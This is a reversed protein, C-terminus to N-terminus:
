FSWGVTGPMESHLGFHMCLVHLVEGFSMFHAERGGRAPCCVSQSGFTQLRLLHSCHVCRGTLFMSGTSKIARAAELSSNISINWGEADLIALFCCWVCQHSDGVPTHLAKGLCQEFHIKATIIPMTGSALNQRSFPDKRQSCVGQLWHSDMSLLTNGVVLLHMVVHKLYYGLVWICFACRWSGAATDPPFNRHNWYCWRCPYFQGCRYTLDPGQLIHRRSCPNRIQM